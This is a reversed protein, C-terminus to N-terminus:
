SRRRRATRAGPTSPCSDPGRRPAHDRDNGREDELAGPEPKAQAARSLVVRRASARRRHARRLAPDRPDHARKEDPDAATQVPLVQAREVRIGEIQGQRERRKRHEDDAAERAKGARYDAREHDREDRSNRFRTSCPTCTPGTWMGARGPSRSTPSAAIMSAIKTRRGRPSVLPRSNGHGLRRRRLVFVSVTGSSDAGASVSVSVGHFSGQQCPPPPRDPHGPLSWEHLRVNMAVPLHPIFRLM